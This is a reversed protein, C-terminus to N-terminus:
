LKGKTTSHYGKCFECYYIRQLNVKGFFRAAEVSDYRVKRLCQRQEKTETPRKEYAIKKTKAM